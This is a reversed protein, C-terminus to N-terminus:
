VRQVGKSFTSPMTPKALPATVSKQRRKELEHCKAIIKDHSSRAGRGNAWAQFWGPLIKSVDDHYTLLYSFGKLNDDEYKIIMVSKYNHVRVLNPVEDIGLVNKAAIVVTREEPYHFVERHYIYERPSLLAGPMKQIWRYVCSEGIEAEKENECELASLHKVWADWEKRYDCDIQVDLFDRWHINEVKSYLRYETEGSLRKRNWVKLADNITKSEHSIKWDTAAQDSYVGGDCFIKGESVCDNEIIEAQLTQHTQKFESFDFDHPQNPTSKAQVTQKLKLCAAVSLPFTLHVCCRHIM